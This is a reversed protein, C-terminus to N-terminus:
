GVKGVCLMQTPFELGAAHIRKILKAGSAKFTEYEPLNRIHEVYSKHWEAFKDPNFQDDFTTNRHQFYEIEILGFQKFIAIIEKKPLTEKHVNGTLRDIEARWHHLHVFTMQQENQGDCFMENVLIYGGRRIVRRMEKFTQELHEVHHLSNSIGVTDFHRESFTLQEGRMLQISIMPDTAFAAKTQEVVTPDADIGTIESCERLHSKLFRIFTGDGTAVDLVKGGTIMGLRKSMLDM